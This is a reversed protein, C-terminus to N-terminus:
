SAGNFHTMKRIQNLQDVDNIEDLPVTMGNAFVIGVGVSSQDISGHITQTDTHHKGLYEHGPSVEQSVEQSVKQSSCSGNNNIASSDLSIFMMNNQKSFEKINKLMEQEKRKMRALKKIEKFENPKRRPGHNQLSVHANLHNLTGYSKTCGEYTCNYYRDIEDSRRRPRKNPKMPQTYESQKTTTTTTTHKKKTNLFNTSDLNSFSTPSSMSNSNLLNRSTQQQILHHNFHKYYDAEDQSVSFTSSSSSLPAQTYSYTFPNIMNYNDKLQMNCPITELTYNSINDNPSGSGISNVNYNGSTYSSYPFNGNSEINANIPNQASCSNETNFPNIYQTALSVRHTTSMFHDQNEM